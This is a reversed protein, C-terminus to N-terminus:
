MLMVALVSSVYIISFSSGFICSLWKKGKKEKFRQIFSLSSFTKQHMFNCEFFPLNWDKKKKKEKRKRRNTTNKRNTFHHYSLQQYVFNMIIHFLNLMAHFQSYVQTFLHKNIRTVYMFRRSQVLCAGVLDFDSSFSVPKNCFFPPFIYVIRIIILPKCISDFSNSIDEKSEGFM